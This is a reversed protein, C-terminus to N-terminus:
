LGISFIHEHKYMCKLKMFIDYIQSLSDLPLELVYPGPFHFKACGRALKPYCIIFIRNKFLEVEFYKGPYDLERILTNM